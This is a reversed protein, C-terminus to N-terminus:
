LSRCKDVVGEEADEEEFARRIDSWVVRCAVRECHSLTRWSKDARVHGESSEWSESIYAGGDGMFDGRDRTPLGRGRDNGERWVGVVGCFLRAVHCAEYEPNALTPLGVEANWLRRSFCREAVDM